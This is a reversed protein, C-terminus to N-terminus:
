TLSKKLFRFIDIHIQLIWDAFKQDEPLARGEQTFYNLCDCSAARIIFNEPMELMLQMKQDDSKLASDKMIKILRLAEKEKAKFLKQWDRATEEPVNHERQKNFFGVFLSAAIKKVEPNDKARAYDALLLKTVVLNSALIEYFYTDQRTKSQKSFRSARRFFSNEFYILSQSLSHSVLHDIAEDVTMESIKRRSRLYHLLKKLLSM